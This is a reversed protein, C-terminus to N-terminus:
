YGGSGSRDGCGQKSQDQNESNTTTTTAPAPSTTKASSAVTPAPSKVTKDCSTIVTFFIACLFSQVIVKKM